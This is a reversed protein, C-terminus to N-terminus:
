ESCWASGWVPGRDRRSPPSSFPDFIKTMYEPSIGSGTDGIEACRMGDEDLYTRVTLTGGATWPM